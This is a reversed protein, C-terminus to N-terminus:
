WARLVTHTQKTLPTCREKRGKGYCRVHAGTGLSVDECRLRVLESVRLGTQLAVLLLAHDRRGAWSRVDPAKLLAEMESRTLYEVLSRDQKKRPIALVRQIRATHDPLQFSVYHFFSRIAALRANRSAACIGHDRELHDLFAGVFPADLDEFTLQSPMKKLHKEAYRLLLRLTDRYAAVTHPSANIQRVLRDTFFAQLLTPFNNSTRM